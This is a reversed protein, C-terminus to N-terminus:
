RLYEEELKKAQERIDYGKRKVIEAHSARSYGKKYTAIKEKWDSINLELMEVNETIIIQSSVNQSILCKIGSVQAEVLVLPFGEFYSPLIFVDMMQLWDEVNTQFGMLFVNDEIGYERIKTEIFDRKSGEGIIVFSIDQDIKVLENTLQMIFEFNKPQELRGVFGVVLKDEFNYKQRLEIRKESNYKFKETDVANNMIKIRSKPIRSDFLWEAAELSCAWYDTAFNQNISSRIEYHKKLVADSFEPKTNGIGTSHAHVIIKKIGYEKAMEEVITGSWYSTHIHIVDYKNELVEAFEKRFEIEGNQPHNKLYYIKGGLRLIEKEFSLKESFTVFDMQIRKKDIYRFNNLSYQTHGGQTEAITFILIRSKRKVNDLQM